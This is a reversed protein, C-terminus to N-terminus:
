GLQGLASSEHQGIQLVSVSWCTAPPCVCLPCSKLQVHITRPSFGRFNWQIMQTHTQAQCGFNVAALKPSPSHVFGSVWLIVAERWPLLCGWFSSPGQAQPCGHVTCTWSPRQWFNCHSISWVPSSRRNSIRTCVKEWGIQILTTKKKITKNPSGVGLCGVRQRKQFRRHCSSIHCGLVEKWGLRAMPTTGIDGDLCVQGTNLGM